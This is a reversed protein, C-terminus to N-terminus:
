HRELSRQGVSEGFMAESLVPMAAGRFLSALMAIVAERLEQDMDAWDVCHLPRLTNYIEPDAPINLMRLCNDVTCISFHREARLMKRMATEAVKAKIKDM